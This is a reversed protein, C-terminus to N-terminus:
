SNCYATWVEQRLYYEDDNQPHVAHDSFVIEANYGISALYTKAFKAFKEPEDQAAASGYHDPDAFVEFVINEMEREGKKLFSSFFGISMEISATQNAGSIDQISQLNKLAQESPRFNVQKQKM